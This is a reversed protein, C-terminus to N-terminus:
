FGQVVAGSTIVIVSTTYVMPIVHVYVDYGHLTVTIARRAGTYLIASALASKRLMYDSIEGAPGLQELM